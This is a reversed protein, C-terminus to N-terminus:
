LNLLGDAAWSSIGYITMQPNVTAATPLVSGDVVFLNDFEHHRLSSSDVVSNAASSGMACGGMVHASYVGVAGPGFPVRDMRDLEQPSSFAVRRTHSLQTSKAGAAFQVMALRRAADRLAEEFRASWAYSLQPSGDELLSVTAGEDPSHLDFGDHLLAIGVSMHPLDALQSQLELGMSFVGSAFQAPFVPAAELMYGMRGEGRHAFAHSAVYQPSGVFGEILGEHVGVVIPAPHLFTRKGTRGNRNLGSRQLLAPTNIGGCSLVFLPAEVTLTIGNPRDSEPDRLRAVAKQIRRGEGTVVEVAANAYVEAGATVADPILTTLMSQKADIPCGMGCYGTHACRKVNRQLLEVEYGLAKCGDWLVRNNRNVQSLQMRHVSLRKELSEFHPRLVESSPGQVGHHEAWHDLVWDPTRFCTTWNVVTTGGVGRGQLITISGDATARGGKDQYMRAYANRELLDFSASPNFGGEELVVVRKGAKALREAVVAGGAGSGVICVDASITQDSTLMKGTYIAM